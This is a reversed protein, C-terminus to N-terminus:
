VSEPVEGAGGCSQLLIAQVDRMVAFLLTTAASLRGTYLGILCQHQREYALGHSLLLNWLVHWSVVEGNHYDDKNNHLQLSPLHCRGGGEMLGSM